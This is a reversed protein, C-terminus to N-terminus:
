AKDSAKAKAKKATKAEKAAAKPAASKTAKASKKAKPAEAAEESGPIYRMMCMSADDGARHEALRVLQTYGGQRDRYRPVIEGYLREIANRVRNEGPKNTQTSGLLRVIQRRGAVDNRKALTVVRDAFWRLEKARAVTTTIAPREILALTLSRLLATRQPSGVGLKRGAHSHRM